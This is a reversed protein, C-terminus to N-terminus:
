TCIMGQLRAFKKEGIGSVRMIDEPSAFPGNRERERVIAEATAQGVGPLTQLEEAGATNINVLGGTEARVPESVAQAPGVEQEGIRPVMVKMGDSLMSALNIADLNADPLAGGAASVADVVRSGQGLTYVGPAAVAGGVDVVVGVQSADRTSAARMGGGPAQTPNAASGTELSGRTGEDAPTSADPAEGGGSPLAGVHTAAGADSSGLDGLAVGGPLTARLVLGLLAAVILLAFLAALVPRPVESLRLFESIRSARRGMSGGYRAATGRGAERSDRGRTLQAM